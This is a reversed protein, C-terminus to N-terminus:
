VKRIVVKASQVSETNATQQMISRACIWRLQVLKCTSPNVLPPTATPFQDYTGGIPNRQYYLFSLQTCERLLVKRTSGEIRTLTRASPNYVYAVQWTVATNTPNSFQFVMSQTDGSILRDAQRIERTIENLADRSVSDLDVYNTLAAFSRASYLTLALIGVLVLGAIGLSVLFEVLTFGQRRKPRRTSTNSCVM